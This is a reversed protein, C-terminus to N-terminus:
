SQQAVCNAKGTLIPRQNGSWGIFASASRTRTGIAENAYHHVILIGRGGYDSRDSSASLFFRDGEGIGAGM